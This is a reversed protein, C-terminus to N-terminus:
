MAFDQTKYRRSFAESTIAGSHRTVFYIGRSVQTVFSPILETDQKELPPPSIMQTEQKQLEPKLQLFTQKEELKGAEVQEEQQQQIPEEVKVEVAPQDVQIVIDQGEPIVGEVELSHVLQHRPSQIGKDQIELDVKVKPLSPKQKMSSTFLSVRRTSKM